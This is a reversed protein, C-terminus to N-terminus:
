CSNSSTCRARTSISTRGPSAASSARAPTHPIRRDFANPGSRDPLAPTRDPDFSQRTTLTRKAKRDRVSPLGTGRAIEGVLNAPWRATHNGIGEGLLGEVSRTAAADREARHQRPRCEGRPPGRESSSPRRRSPRLRPRGGTSPARRARQPCPDTGSLKAAPRPSLRRRHPRTLRTSMRSTFAGASRDM